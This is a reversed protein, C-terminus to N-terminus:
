KCKEGKCTEPTSYRKFLSNLEDTVTDPQSLGTFSFDVLTVSFPGSAYEGINPRGGLGAALIRQGNLGTSVLANRIAQARRESLRLDRQPDPSAKIQAEITLTKFYPQLPKLASSLELIFSQMEPSLLADNRNFRFSDRPLSYKSVDRVVTRSIVRPVEVKQIRESRIVVDTKRLLTDYGQLPLGFQLTLGYTQVYRQNDPIEFLYQAGLRFIGSESLLDVALMGGGLLMNRVLGKRQSLTLDTGFYDQVILGLNFKPTLRYRMGGEVFASQTYIRHGIEPAAPNNDRTKGYLASFGWGIGGELIWSDLLFSALAKGTLYNGTFPGENSITTTHNLLGVDTGLQLVTPLTTESRIIKETTKSSIQPDSALTGARAQPASFLLGLAATAALQIRGIPM